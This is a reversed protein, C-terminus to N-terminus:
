RGLEGVHQCERRLVGAECWASAIPGTAASSRNQSVATM